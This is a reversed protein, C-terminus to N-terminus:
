ALKIKGSHGWKRLKDIKEMETTALPIMNKIAKAIDKTTFERDQYFGIYMGEIISQEIESGSFKKSLKSLYYINYKYWTFPRIKKLHIQFINLREQFKPLDVFFIEDFRGKRLIEIPLNHITNATAVIFVDKKKESLWTLFINTVRLTTGSDTNHTNKTFVKDIEDIWLVCPSISESTEIVKRIKNESEGLLGDFIQSIDVKLLPLNWKISIAKASLSKGTGQIGM